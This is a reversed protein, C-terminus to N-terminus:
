QMTSWTQLINFSLFYRSSNKPKKEQHVQWHKARTQSLQDMLLVSLAQSDMIRPKWPSHMLPAYYTIKGSPLSAVSQAPGPSTPMQRSSGQYVPLLETQTPGLQYSSNEPSSLDLALLFFPLLESIVTSSFHHVQSWPLVLLM